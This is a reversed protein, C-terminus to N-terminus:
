YNEYLNTPRVRFYLRAMSSYIDNSEALPMKVKLVSAVTL